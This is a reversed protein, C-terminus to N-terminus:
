LWFSLSWSCLSPQIVSLLNNLSVASLASFLKGQLTFILPEPTPLVITKTVIDTAKLGIM